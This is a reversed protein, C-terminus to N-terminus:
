GPKFPLPFTWENSSLRLTLSPPSASSLLSLCACERSLSSCWQVTEEDKCYPHVGVCEQPHQPTFCSPSHVAGPLAQCVRSQQRLGPKAAQAPEGPVECQTSLEGKHPVTVHEGWGRGVERHVQGPRTAEGVLARSISGVNEWMQSRTNCSFSRLLCNNIQPNICTEPLAGESHGQTQTGLAGSLRKGWASSRPTLSAGPATISSAEM